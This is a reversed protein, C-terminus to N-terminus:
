ESFFAYIFKLKRKSNFQIEILALKEPKSYQLFFNIINSLLPIRNEKWANIINFLRSWAAKDSCYFLCEDGCRDMFIKNAVKFKSLGILLYYISIYIFIINSIFFGFIVIEFYILCKKFLSINFLLIFLISCQSGSPGKIAGFFSALLLLTIEKFFYVIYIITYIPIIFQGKNKISIDSPM